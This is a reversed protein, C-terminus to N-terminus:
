SHKTAHKRREYEEYAWLVSNKFAVLGSEDEIHLVINPTWYSAGNANIHITYSHSAALGSVHCVPPKDKGFFFSATHFRM